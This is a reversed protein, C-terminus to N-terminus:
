AEAPDANAAIPLRLTFATGHGVTSDLELTGRHERVIDLAIALGLGTGENPARTTFFPDFIREQDDKPIGPGNDHIRVYARDLEVGTETVIRADPQDGLAQKANLLLNLLVQVLRQASGLVVPLASYLRPIIRVSSDRKLAALRLSEEVVRNLDVAQPTDDSVRSFRLMSEVIRTIRDLGELSEGLVSPFEILDRASESGDLELHKVLEGSLEHLHSLNARVYALPNNVEHAIGSALIGVSELKQRERLLLESQRQESRDRLTMFRGGPHMGMPAVAGATVELWRGPRSRFEGRERRGDPPLAAVREALPTADEEPDLMTLLDGLSRGRLATRPQGIVNEAAANADLVVGDSDALVLGDEIHDIADHRVIPQAEFLGYRQVGVVFCIATAGITAPALSYDLPLWDMVFAFHALIPTAIASLVLVARLREPANRGRVIASICLGIAVADAIACSAQLGWYLPGAWREPHGGHMAATRDDFFLHHLGDTWYAVAFIGFVSFISAAAAPSREFTPSRAFYGMAVVFLPAMLVISMVEADLAVSKIALSAAHTRVALSGLWLALSGLLLGVLTHLPTRDRRMLTYIVLGVLIPISIALQILLPTSAM